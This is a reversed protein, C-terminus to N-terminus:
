VHRVVYRRCCVSEIDSCLYCIALHGGNSRHIAKRGNAELSMLSELAGFAKVLCTRPCEKASRFGAPAKCRKLDTTVQRRPGARPFWPVSREKTSCHTGGRLETPGQRYGSNLVTCLDLRRNWM